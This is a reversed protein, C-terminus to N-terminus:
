LLQGCSSHRCQSGKNCAYVAVVVVSPCVSVLVVLLLM